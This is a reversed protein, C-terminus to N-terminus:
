YAEIVYEVGHSPNGILRQTEPDVVFDMVDLPCDRGQITLRVAEYVDAEGPGISSTVLRKGTKTLGLQQILHTPLALMFAGTDALADRVTVRRVQEPALVPPTAPKSFCSIRPMKNPMTELNGLFIGPLTKPM